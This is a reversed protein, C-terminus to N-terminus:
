ANLGYAFTDSCRIPFKALNMLHVRPHSSCINSSFQGLWSCETWLFCISWTVSSFLNNCNFSHLLRDWFAAPAYRSIGVGALLFTDDIDNITSSLLVHRLMGHLM